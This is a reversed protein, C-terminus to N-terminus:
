KKGYRVKGPAPAVAKKQAAKKRKLKEMVAAMLSERYSVKGPKPAVPSGKAKKGQKWAKGTKGRASRSEFSLEFRSKPKPKEDEEEEEKKPKVQAKKSVGGPSPAIRKGKFAGKKFTLPVTVQRYPDKPGGPRREFEDQSAYDDLLKNVVRQAIERLDNM